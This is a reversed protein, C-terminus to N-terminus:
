TDAVFNIFQPSFGINTSARNSARDLRAHRFSAPCSSLLCPMVFLRCRHFCVVKVRDDWALARACYLEVCKLLDEAVSVQNRKPHRVHVERSRVEDGVCQLGAHVMRDEAVSGFRLVVPRRDDVPHCPQVSPLDALLPETVDRADHLTDAHSDISQKVLLVLDDDLRRDIM